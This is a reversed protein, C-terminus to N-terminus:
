ERHYVRENIGRNRNGEYVKVIKSFIYEPIEIYIDEEEILVDGGADVSFKIGNIELETVVDCECFLALDKKKKM